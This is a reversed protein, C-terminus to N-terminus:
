GGGRTLEESSSALTIRTASQTDTWKVSWERGRTSTLRIPTNASVTSTQIANGDAYVVLSGSTFDGNVRAWAFTPKDNFTYISSQWVGTTASGAFMPTVAGSVVTYMTDTLLDTYAASAGSATTLTMSTKAFDLTLKKSACTTCGRV